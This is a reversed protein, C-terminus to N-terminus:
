LRKLPVSAYDIVWKATCTFALLLMRRAALLGGNTSLDEIDIFGKPTLNQLYWLCYLVAIEQTGQADFM